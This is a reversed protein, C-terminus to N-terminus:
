RAGGAVQGNLARKDAKVTSVSAGVEAAISELTLGDQLLTLVQQRRAAINGQRTANAKDLAQKDGPVFQPKNATTKAAVQATLRNLESTKAQVMKGLETLKAQLEAAEAQQGAKVVQRSIQGLVSEFSLLLMISPIAWMVRSLATQNPAHLINFTMAALSSAIVLGWQVKAQEGDLTRTLATLSFVILGGELILPFLVPVSLGQQNALETLSNFSLTFAAIALGATLIATVIAIFKKANM